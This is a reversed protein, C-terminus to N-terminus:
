EEEFGFLDSNEKAELLAKFIYYDDPTTIKINESKGIVTHLKHGYHSMLTGSDTFTNIGESRAKNHAELIDDLYFCQPARAILLSDRDTIVSDIDKGNSCYVITEKCQVCTIANGKEKVTDICNNILKSDILPRVGDHILVINNRGWAIRKAKVLANYISEQGTSGGPVVGEVKSIDYEDIINKCYDIWDEVCAVVIKDINKNKEFIELTHILIPKGHVKLFQKPVGQSRMRTGKGGAFIVAVNM